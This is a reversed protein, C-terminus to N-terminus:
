SIVQFVFNPFILVYNPLIFLNLQFGCAIYLQLVLYFHGLNSWFPGSKFKEWFIRFRWKKRSWLSPKACFILLNYHVSQSFIRFVEIKPCKPDFHAIKSLKQGFHSKEFFRKSCKKASVLGSLSCLKLFFTILPNRSFVPRSSKQVEDIM